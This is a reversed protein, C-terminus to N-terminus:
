DGHAGMRRVGLAVAGCKDFQAHRGTGDFVKSRRVRIGPVLGDREPFPGFAIGSGYKHDRCFAETGTPYPPDKLAFEMAAGGVDLDRREFRRVIRKPFPPLSFM